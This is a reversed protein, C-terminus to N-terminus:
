EEGYVGFGEIHGEIGARKLSRNMKQHKTKWVEIEFERGFHHKLWDLMVEVDAAEEILEEYSTARGRAFHSAAGILESLEESLLFLRDKVPEKEDWLAIAEKYHM